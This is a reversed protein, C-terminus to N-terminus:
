RTAHSDDLFFFDGECLMWGLPVARVDRVFCTTGQGASSSYVWIWASTEPKQHDERDRDKVITLWAMQLTHTHM